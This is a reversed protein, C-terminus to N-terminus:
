PRPRCKFLVVAGILSFLVAYWQTTYFGLFGPLLDGRLSDVASRTFGYLILYWATLEGPKTETRSFIYLIFFLAADALVYYIETPHVRNALFPFNVAWPLNSVKGYCCGNFFCGLRGIAQGLPLYLIFSDLTPRVAIKKRRLYWISGALGFLLGGQIALGGRRLLFIEWFHRQYYSWEATIHILRAGIIGVVVALFILNYILQEPIGLKRSRRLGLFFAIAIGGAVFLGYTYVAFGGIQFLIPHM